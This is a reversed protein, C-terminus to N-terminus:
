RPEIVNSGWVKIILCRCRLDQVKGQMHSKVIPGLFEGPDKLSVRAESLFLCSGVGAEMWRYGLRSFPSIDLFCGSNCFNLTILEAGDLPIVLPLEPWAAATPGRSTATMDPCAPVLPSPAVGPSESLIGVFLM